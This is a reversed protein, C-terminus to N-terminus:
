VNRIRTIETRAPAKPEKRGKVFHIRGRWQPVAELITQKDRGDTIYIDIDRDTYGQEVLGGIIWVRGKLKKIQELETVVENHTIRELKGEGEKIPPRGIPRSPTKGKQIKEIDSELAMPTQPGPYGLPPQMAVKTEEAIREIEKQANEVGLVPACQEIAHYQSCLKLGLATGFMTIRTMDDGYIQSTYIVRNRYYGKVSNGKIEKLFPTGKREGELILKNAGVQTDLAELMVMNLEKLVSRRINLKNKISGILPQVLTMLAKGSPSIMATEASVLAPMGAVKHTYGELQRQLIAIGSPLDPQRLFDLTEDPFMSAHGGPGGQAKIESFSRTPSKFITAPNAAYASWDLISSVLDANARCIDLIQEIDSYPLLKGPWGIKNPIEFFPPRKYKNIFPGLVYRDDIVWLVYENTWVEIKRYTESDELVALDKAYDGAQAKIDEGTLEDEIMVDKLKFVDGGYCDPYYNDLVLLPEIIPVNTKKERGLKLVAEGLSSCSATIRQHLIENKNESWCGYIIEENLSAQKKDEKGESKPPVQFDPPSSMLAMFDEFIAMALNITLKQGEPEEPWFVEHQGELFARNKQFAENRLAFDEKRKM